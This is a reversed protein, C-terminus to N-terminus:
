VKELQKKLGVKHDDPLAPGKVGALMGSAMEHLAEHKSKIERDHQHSRTNM